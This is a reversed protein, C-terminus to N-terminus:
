INFENQYEIIYKINSYLAIDVYKQLGLHFSYYEYVHDMQANFWATTLLAFPGNTDWYGNSTM